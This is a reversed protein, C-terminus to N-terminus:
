TTGSLSITQPGNWANDNIKVTGTFTGTGKPAFTVTIACSTVGGESTTDVTAGNCTTGTLTFYGSSSSVSIAPNRLILPTNGPNTVTITQQNSNGKLTTPFTLKGSSLYTSSFAAQPNIVLATLLVTQTAASDVITLTTTSATPSFVKATAWIGVGIPCSKGPPLTAPLKVIMPPCFSLDGYDGPATGGALNISTITIPATTTNKLTVFQGGLQGLYLTGFNVTLPSIDLGLVTVKGNVPTITYNGGNSATCSSPYTGPLSTSTATTTCTVGLTIAGDGNVLGTFTPTIPPVAGGYAITASSAAITLPAPGVTVTGPVSTIMYTPDTASCSSKYPNGAVPSSSTANTTCTVTGLSSATDGNVFASYSPTITPPTGGYTMSGSSATITLAAPAVTLTYNLVFPSGVGNTASFSILSSGVTGDLPTGAITGLTSNFTLGTPLTGSESLTPAPYVPPSSPPITVQFTGGVGETFTITPDGGVTCGNVCSAALSPPTPTPPQQVPNTGATTPIFAIVFNNTAPIKSGVPDLGNGQTVFTTVDEVFQCYITPSYQSQNPPTGVQMPDGCNTGYPLPPFEYSDPDDIMRLTSGTWYPAPPVFSTNAFGIDVFVGGSYDAPPPVTGPGGGDEAALYLLYQVCNGNLYPDCLPAITNLNSDTGYNFFSGFRCAFNTTVTGDPPCLGNDSFETFLVTLDFATYVTPILVTVATANPDTCPNLSTIPKPNNPCLVFTQTVNTGPNFPLTVPNLSSSTTAAVFSATVNQASSMTVTCTSNTGSNACAGGWGGFTSLGGATSGPTETLTVVAEPADTESCTGTQAVGGGAETCNIPTLSVAPSTTDTVNGAGLGLETLTLAIPSTSPTIAVNDLLAGVNGSINSKFELYASDTSPVTFQFSVIGTTVDNSALDFTHSYYSGFTVTTSTEDGRQSGILDFSLTYTGPNLTIPGSKIDGQSNGNSGDLDVCNGSEPSVCLGGFLEGGVIDVNTGNIATFAGASTAALQPTLEDFNEQLIPTQASAAFVMRVTCCLLTFAIKKLTTLTAPPVPLRKMPLERKLKRTLTLLNASM